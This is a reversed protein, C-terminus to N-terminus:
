RDRDRADPAPVGVVLNLASGIAIGLGAGCIVDLPNHAGVYVRGVMVLAVLVWPVAKWRGPLYPAILCAMAAVLVAHGSVFSEGAASVDGRLDASSGISSGPRERSVIAKVVRELVLKLVAALFLALALRYRRLVLAVLALVPAVLIAGIQQFPWLVPNLTDPLGNVADFTDREWGPVHGDTGVIVMGAVLVLLGAAGIVADAPRRVYTTGTPTGVETM